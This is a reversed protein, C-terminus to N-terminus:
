SIVQAERIEADAIRQRELAVLLDLGVQVGHPQEWSSTEYLVGDSGVVDDDYSAEGAIEVDLRVLVQGNALRRANSAVVRKLEMTHRWRASISHRSGGRYETREDVFDEAQLWDWLLSDIRKWGNVEEMLWERPKVPGMNLNLSRELDGLRDLIPSVFKEVVDQISRMLSIRGVVGRRELENELEPDLGDSGFAAADKSVLVLPGAECMALASEWILADHYGQQGEGAFPRVGAIARRVIDAHTVAPYGAVDIGLETLRARLVEPYDALSPTLLVSGGDSTVVSRLESLVAELKVRDRCFHKIHEQLVVEPVFVRYGGKVQGQALAVTGPRSLFYDRHLSNTDLLIKM